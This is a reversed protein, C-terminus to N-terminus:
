RDGAGKPTRLLRFQTLSFLFSPFSTIIPLQAINQGTRGPWRRNSPNWGIGSILASSCSPSAVPSGRACRRLNCWITIQEELEFEEVTCWTGVVPICQFLSPRVPPCKFRVDHIPMLRTHLIPHHTISMIHSMGSRDISRASPSCPNHTRREHTPLFLFPLM